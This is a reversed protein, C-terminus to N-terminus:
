IKVKRPHQTSEYTKMDSILTKMEVQLVGKQMEELAPRTDTIKRKKQKELFSKNRRWIHLFIHIKGSLANKAPM